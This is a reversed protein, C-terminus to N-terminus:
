RGGGVVDFSFGLQVAPRFAWPVLLYERDGAVLSVYRRRAPDVDLLVRLFVSLSPTADWRLGIGASLFPAADVGARRLFQRPIATSATNAILLDLGGGLGGEVEFVGLRKRVGPLLRLSVSQFLLRALSSEREVPGQYSALLSVAPRWTAAGFVASVQVGGGLVVPSVEDLARGQVFAGLELGFAPEAPPPLEPARVVPGEVPLVPARRRAEVTLEQVGAQAILAASESVLLAPGGRPLTKTRRPAGTADFVEVVCAEDTWTVKVKAFVPGDGGVRLEFDMARLWDKLSSALADVDAESGIADLQVVRPSPQASACVSALALGAALLVLSAQRRAPRM